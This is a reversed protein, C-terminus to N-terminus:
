RNNPSYAQNKSKICGGPLLVSEKKRLFISIDPICSYPFPPFLPFYATKYASYGQITRKRDCSFERM